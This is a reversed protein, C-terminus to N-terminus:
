ELSRLAKILARALAQLEVGRLEVIEIAFADVGLLGDRVRQLLTEAHQDALATRLADDARHPVAPPQFTRTM